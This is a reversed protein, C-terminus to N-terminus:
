IEIGLLNKVERLDTINFTRELARKLVNIRGINSGTIILNDVYIAVILPLQGRSLEKKIYVAPDVESRRLGQNIFFKDVV